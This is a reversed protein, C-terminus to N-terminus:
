SELYTIRVFGDNDNGNMKGTGIYRPMGEITSGKVNTWSYGQGDIMQTNTFKFGSYHISDKKPIINEKTSTEEIAICGDHGSIFSSGGAGGYSDIFASSGGGYYGGGGAGNGDNTHLNRGGGIGFTGNNYGTGGSTQSGGTAAGNGYGVLGGAPGALDRNDNGAGGGAVMIRSKLSDFENWLGGVTRIDSAGGGGFQGDGGGNYGIVGKKRIQPVSGVYIFFKQGRTLEIEGSVYGGYGPRGHSDITPPDEEGRAGWAEFKYKGTKAVYFIQQHNVFEYNWENSNPLKKPNIYNMNINLSIEQAPALSDVDYKYALNVKIKRAQGARLIDGQKIESDDLAYNISSNFFEKQSDTIGSVQFDNLTADMTGNNLVYFTYILYGGPKEFNGSINITNNDEISSKVNSINADEVALNEFHVDFNGETFSMTGNLSLNVTLIAFGISIFLMIFLVFFKYHRQKM